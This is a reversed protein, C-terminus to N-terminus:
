VVTDSTKQIGHEDHIEIGKIDLARITLWKNNLPFRCVVGKNTKTLGKKVLNFDEIFYKIEGHKETECILYFPTIVTMQFFSDVPIFYKNDGLPKFNHKELPINTKIFM